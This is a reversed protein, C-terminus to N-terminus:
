PYTIRAVGNRTLIYLAGDAGVTMDVPQGTLTAFAYVGKRAPDIRGVFRAAYDAFYYNNRYTAPFSGPSDGTPYFTGGAIANGVFFGGPGSGPPVAPAHKYAFLPGAIDPTVNDPGESGPWGYNAGAVGLDIEEWTNQGVDNIHIIGTRPHIAFTFPNRLGCAWIARALGTQSGFFPNDPPITGDANFRLMKGLPQTLDQATESRANDGVGVYLMGDLGFHIAGGNHNTAQLAPLDFLVVESGPIAADGGAALDATFRSVRNHVGADRTTYYLYVYGNAAFDPHPAVGLLGREGSPDVALQVFPAALLVGDKVVRLAGAQQAILFRGDPLQAFATASALGTLWTQALTFGSPVARGSSFQVTASSWASVNGAADRSRARIVHQGAPYLGTDISVAYPPTTDPTGVVIGDVDFTVSQVGVDDSATAAAVIRGTLGASLNAPLRLTVKPKTTDAAAPASLDSAASVPGADRLDDGGCACVLVSALALSCKLPAVQSDM